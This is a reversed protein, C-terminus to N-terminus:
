SNQLAHHLDGNKVIIVVREACEVAEFLQRTVLDFDPVVVDLFDIRQGFSQTVGLHQHQYALAGLDARWQEVPQVFKPEYALAANVRM